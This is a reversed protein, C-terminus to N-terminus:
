SVPASTTAVLTGSWSSLTGTNCGGPIGTAQVTVVHPGAAVPTFSVFTSQGPALPDSTFISGDVGIAVQIDSCHSPSATFQFQAIGESTISTTFTPDCTEGISTCTVAIPYTTDVLMEPSDRDPHLCLTVAESTPSTIGLGHLVRYATRYGPASIETIFNYDGLGVPGIVGNALPAVAAAALHQIQFVAVGARIPAGTKCDNVYITFWFSPPIAAVPAAAIRVLMAAGVVGLLGRRILGM